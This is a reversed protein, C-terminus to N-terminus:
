PRNAAIIILVVVFLGFVVVFAALHSRRQGFTHRGAEQYFQDIMQERLALAQQEALEAISPSQDDGGIGDQGPLCTFSSVCYESPDGLVDGSVVFDFGRVSRKFPPFVFIGTRPVRPLVPGELNTSLPWLYSGTTRDILFVRSKAPNSEVVWNISATARESLMALRVAVYTAYRHSTVDVLDVVLSRNGLRGPSFQAGVPEGSSNGFTLKNGDILDIPAFQFRSDRDYECSFVREPSEQAIRHLKRGANIIPETLNEAM